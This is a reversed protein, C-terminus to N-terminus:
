SEKGVAQLLILLKLFYYSAGGITAYQLKEPGEVAPFDNDSARSFGGALWGLNKYGHQHLKSVAMTSRLGEGCALIVKTDKDPVLKEVQDVFDPNIMTFNQGTWLGIYGFHVWKKLLTLPSNDLDKVFLPVHISGSVSAKEREWEPRVDLLVYGESEMVSAADKPLIPRVTGSRILQPGSGSISNTRWLTTATTLRQQLQVPPPSPWRTWKPQQQNYHLFSPHSGQLQQLRMPQNTM